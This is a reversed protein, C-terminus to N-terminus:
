NLDNEKCQDEEETSIAELSAGQDEHESLEEQARGLGAESVGSQLIEEQHLQFMRWLGSVEQCGGVHLLKSQQLSIEM